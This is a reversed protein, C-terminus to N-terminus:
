LLLIQKGDCRHENQSAKAINERDNIKEELTEVRKKLDNIEEDRRGLAQDTGYGTETLVGLIELFLAGIRGALVNQQSKPTSSNLYKKVIPSVLSPDVVIKNLIEQKWGEYDEDPTVVGDIDIRTEGHVNWGYNKQTCLNRIQPLSNEPFGCYIVTQGVYKILKTNVKLARVKTSMRM